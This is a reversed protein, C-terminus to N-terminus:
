PACDRRGSLSTTSPAPAKKRTKKARRGVLTGKRTRMRAKRARGSTCWMPTASTCGTCLFASTPTRGPVCASCARTGTARPTSTTPRSWSISSTRFRCASIYLSSFAHVDCISLAKRRRARALREVRRESPRFLGADRDRDRDDVGAPVQERELAHFAAFEMGDVRGGRLRYAGRGVLAGGSGFARDALREVDGVREAQREGGARLAPGRHFAARRDHGAAFADAADADGATVPFEVLAHRLFGRCGERSLGSIFTAHMPMPHHDSTSPSAILREPLSVM